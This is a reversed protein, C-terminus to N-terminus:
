DDVIDDIDDDSNNNNNNDFFNILNDINKENEEKFNRFKKIIVNNNIVNNNNNNNNFNYKKEEFNEMEKEEESKFMNNFVTEDENLDCNNNNNYFNIKNYNKIEKFLWLVDKNFKKFSMLFISPNFEGCEEYLKKNNNIVNNNVILNSKTFNNKKLKENKEYQEDNFIMYGYFNLYFKDNELTLDKNYNKEELKYEFKTFKDTFSFVDFINSLNKTSKIHFYSNEIFLENFKEKYIPINNIIDNQINFYFLNSLNNSYENKKPYIIKNLNKNFRKNYLIRGLLHFLSKDERKNNNNNNNNNIFFKNKTNNNNIFNNNNFNNNNNNFEQYIFQKLYNKLQYLNGNTIFLINNLFENYNNNDFCNIGFIKLYEIIINKIKNETILHIKIIKTRNHYIIKEGFIKSIFYEKIEEDEWYFILYLGNNNKENLFSFLISKFQNLFDLNLFQIENNIRKLYLDIPFNKIILFINNIHKLNDKNNNIINIINLFPSIEENNNDINFNINNINFNFSFCKFNKILYKILHEQGNQAPSILFLIKENNINNNNNNFLSSFYNIIKTQKDKNISFNFLKGQILYNTIIEDFNNELNENTLFEKNNINNNNSILSNQSNFKQSSIKSQKSRIKKNNNFKRSKSVIFNM